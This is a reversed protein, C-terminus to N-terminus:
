EQAMRCFLAIEKRAQLIGDCIDVLVTAEYGNIKSDGKYCILPKFHDLPKDKYIFPKLSKQTLYRTLRTGATEKSGETEDVMKLVRQMERASLVRTGNELVYCPIILGNLDLKGEYKIKNEKIM